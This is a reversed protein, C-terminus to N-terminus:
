KSAEVHEPNVYVTRIFSPPAEVKRDNVIAAVIRTGRPEVSPWPTEGDTVVIVADPRPKRELAAKIGVRMDTGGRGALKVASGKSVNHQVAAVASDCAIFTVTAGLARCLDEITGRVIPLAKDDDMSASTDGVVTVIPVPSRMSPLIFEPLASQRRSPKAYSSFLHGKVDEITRRVCAGIERQWPIPRPKLIAESWSVLSGPVVGRTAEAAQRVQEATRRIVDYADAEELGDVGSSEPSGKEWPRPNGTAGSGCDPKWGGGSKKIGDLQGKGQKDKLTEYYREFTLNEPLKFMRPYYAGEPLPPIDGLTRNEQEHDDNIELDAAINAVEEGILVGMARARAHHERLPHMIEHYMVAVCGSVGWAIAQKPNWYMRWFEDVAASSCMPEELLVCAYLSTALYPRIEEALKVRAAAVTEYAEQNTWGM